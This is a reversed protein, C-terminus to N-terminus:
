HKGGVNYLESTNRALWTEITQETHTKTRKVTYIALKYIYPDSFISRNWLGGVSIKQPYLTLYQLPFHGLILICRKCKLCIVCVRLHM